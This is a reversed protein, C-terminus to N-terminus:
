KHELLLHIPYKLSKNIKSYTESKHISFNFELESISIDISSPRVLVWEKADTFIYWRKGEQKIGQGGVFNNKYDRGTINM